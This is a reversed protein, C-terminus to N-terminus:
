AIQSFLCTEEMEEEVDDHDDVNHDDENYHEDHFDDDENDDHFGNDDDNNSALSVLRKKPKVLPRNTGNMKYYLGSLSIDHHDQGEGHDNDHDWDNRM